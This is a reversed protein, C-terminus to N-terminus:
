TREFVLLNQGYWWTTPAVQSFVTTLQLTLNVNVSLGRECLKQKWYSHPQENVHGSGSQGPIAASFLLYRLTSEALIDCLKDAKGAPLHEALEWCIVLESPVSIDYKTLDARITQLSDKVNLDIGTSEVGLKHALRVLHGDGCGVDFLSAPIGLYAFSALLCRSSWEIDRQSQHYAILQSDDVQVVSSTM